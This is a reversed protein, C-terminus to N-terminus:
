ENRFATLPEHILDGDRFREPRLPHIDLTTAKGEVILEAIVMGVAPSHQFGHGSFGNACIFGRMEPFAGLIAHHDPSIEYLGAWGGALHAQELAPVRHLSREAAWEQGAFDTTENFSSEGDQPGALLLAKGERRIYWGHEMDIVLPFVAPLGDFPATFFIQRRLPRVPIDLGVLSAVKAAHPGAANVVVETRVGEGTSTEVGTVRGRQTLIGTVEVEERLVAGLRRAGGIFGWLVEYPGAYGDGPSYTGGVLDDVNLFPWRRRIEGRDMLEVELGLREMLLVNTRLVSWQREDAALFLYGIRHFEPDVGFEAEFGDFVERSVLSCRINVETSFQTRIGGACKGTSGGGMPGRELLLVKRVGKKALYYAISAGIIGGGIIVVDARPPLTVAIRGDFLRPL